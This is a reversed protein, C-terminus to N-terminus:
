LNLNRKLDREIDHWNKETWVNGFIREILTEARSLIKESDADPKNAMGDIESEISHFKSETNKLSEDDAIKEKLIQEIKSHLM